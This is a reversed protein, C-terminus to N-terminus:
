AIGEVPKFLEVELRTYEPKEARCLTKIVAAVAEPSSVTCLLMKTDGALWVSVRYNYLNEM